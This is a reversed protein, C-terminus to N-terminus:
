TASNWRCTTKPCSLTINENDPTADFRLENGYEDRFVTLRENVVDSTDDTVTPDYFPKNDENYVRGTIIPRDPDGAIFSVLVEHGAHPIEM